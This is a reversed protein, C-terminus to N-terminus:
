GINSLRLLRELDKLLGHASGSAPYSMMLNGHPDVVYIGQGDRAAPPFQARFADGAPGSAALVLLDADRSPFEVSACQGTHLLVRQVRPADQALALRIRALEELIARTRVDCAPGAPHVLSWHGRFVNVPVPRGDPLALGAPALPRPPDMLEGHAQVGPRWATWFYLIFATALPIIFLAAVVLLQRRGLRRPDDAATM